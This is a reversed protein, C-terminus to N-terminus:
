KLIFSSPKIETQQSRGESGATLLRACTRVRLKKM